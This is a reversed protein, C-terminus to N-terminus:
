DDFKAPKRNASTVVARGVYAVGLVLGLFAAVLLFAAGRGAQDRAGGRQALIKVAGVNDGAATVQGAAAAAAAPAAEDEAAVAATVESAGTGGGGGDIAAGAAVAAVPDYKGAGAADAVLTTSLIRHRSLSLARACTRLHAM